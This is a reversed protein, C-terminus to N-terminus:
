NKRSDLMMISMEDQASENEPDSELVSNFEKKAEDKLGLRSYVQGLQVRADSDKPCALIVRRLYFVKDSDSASKKAREFDKQGADCASTAASVKPAVNAKAVNATLEEKSQTLDSSAKALSKDQEISKKIEPENLKARSSEKAVIINKDSSTPPNIIRATKPPVKSDSLTPKKITASSFTPLEPKPKQLEITPEKAMPLGTGNTEKRSIFTPQDTAKANGSITKPVAPINKEEKIQTFTSKKSLSSYSDGNSSIDSEITPEVFQAAKGKTGSPRNSNNSSNSSSWITDALSGRSSSAIKKTNVGSRADHQNIRKEQGDIAHGILGGSTAGAISGLVVGAGAEGATSGVLAGVGAGILAGAGVGAETNDLEPLGSGADENTSCSAMLFLSFIFVTTRTIM